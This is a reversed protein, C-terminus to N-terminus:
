AGSRDVAGHNITDKLEALEERIAALQQAIAETDAPDAGSKSGDSAASDTPAILVSALISALAGIIGVGALMVLLAVLRGGLTVPYYDGYGVTSITVVSWWLAEGGTKINADPNPSEFALVLVSGFVLVIVASLFTIFGAYQGRHELVDGLIQERNQSRLLRSIRAVRSLRALRLLGVYKFGGSLSPISGLLDLWGREHFFYRRPSPALRMRYAFDGLFVVCILNDYMRLLQDTASNLPLILLVMIALSLVTLVFVFLEYANGPARGGTGQTQAV